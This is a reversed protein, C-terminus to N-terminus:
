KFSSDQLDFSKVSKILFDKIEKILYSKKWFTIGFDPIDGFYILQELFLRPNFETKYKKQTMRVIEELIFVKRKLLFFIDVYDRWQGRQGITFAKDAAIDSVSALDLSSTKVLPYVNKYWYYVFHVEIDEPTAALLLDGTKLRIRIDQGLIEKVKQFFRSSIPKALFIDFDFSRRHNLQLALATGGALFGYKKFAALKEFLKKRNHDLIELYLESM